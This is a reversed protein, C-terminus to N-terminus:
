AHAVRRHRSNYDRGDRRREVQRHRYLNDGLRRHIFWRRSQDQELCHHRKGDPARGIGVGPSAVIEKLTAALADSAVEHSVTETVFTDSVPSAEKPVKVNKYTFVLKDATTLSETATATFSAGGPAVSLTAKPNGEANLTTSLTVEGRDAIGDGDDTRFASWDAPHSVKVQAGKAM